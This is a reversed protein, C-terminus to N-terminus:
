QHADSSQRAAAIIEETRLGDTLTALHPVREHEIDRDRVAHLPIVLSREDEIM